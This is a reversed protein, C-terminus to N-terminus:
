MALYIITYHYSEDLWTRQLLFKQFTVLNVKEGSMNKHELKKSHRLLAAALNKETSPNVDVNSQLRKLYQLVNTLLEKDFVHATTNIQIVNEEKEAFTESKDAQDLSHFYSM